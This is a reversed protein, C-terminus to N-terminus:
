ADNNPCEMCEVSVDKLTKLRHDVKFKLVLKLLETVQQVQLM